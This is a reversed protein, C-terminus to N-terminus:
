GVCPGVEAGFSEPLGSDVSELEDGIIREARGIIKDLRDQEKKCVNGGWCILCYRWVGCITSNYFMKLIEPRVHFSSMKRLCCMRSNLKKIIQDIQIEWTMKNDLMVGLYKYESAREVEMGKIVIPEPETSTRRFDILMEKTKGVNLELYNGDCYQVFSEVQSLFASDDDKDILGAMETDDAFKVLPCKESTSVCDSTYVTFLFPALVTGQPAGTNSIITDSLTNSDLKVYQSRSSLYDLIWLSFNSPVNMDILKKVLIHPQITNFASPFDFFLMRVSSGHRAGELHSYSKDFLFLIADECSRGAQYAFQMTDLFPRLIARFRPLFFRELLKM